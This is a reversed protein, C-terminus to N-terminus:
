PILRNIDEVIGDMAASVRKLGEAPELGPETRCSAYFKIKPETGSPRVTVMAGNELVFQLVNSSPLDIKEKGGGSSISEGCLYDKVVSVKSGGFAMPPSERLRSMLAQMEELGRQGKLVRSLLSEKFFGHTRNM